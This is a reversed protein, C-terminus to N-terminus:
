KINLKKKLEEVNKYGLKKAAYDLYGEDLISKIDKQVLLEKLQKIEAELKKVKDLDEMTEIKIRRNFLDFKGHKKIWVDLTGLSICYVRRIEQKNYKGAELESLVHLKFSESYRRITRNDKLM